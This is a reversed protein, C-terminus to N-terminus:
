KQQLQNNSDQTAEWSGPDYCIPPEDTSKTGIPTKKKKKKKREGLSISHTVHQTANHSQAATNTRKTLTCRTYHGLTTPTETIERTLYPAHWRSKTSLEAMPESMLKKAKRTKSTIRPPSLTRQHAYANLKGDM